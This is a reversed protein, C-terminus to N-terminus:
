NEGKIEETLYSIIYSKTYNPKYVIPTLRDVPTNVQEILPLGTKGQVAILINFFPEIYAAPTRSREGALARDLLVGHTDTKFLAHIFEVLEDKQVSSMIGARYRKKNLKREKLSPEKVV